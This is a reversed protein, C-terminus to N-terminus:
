LTSMDEAHVLRWRLGDVQVDDLDEVFTYFWTEDDVVVVETCGFRKALKSGEDRVSGPAKEVVKCVAAMVDPEDQRLIRMNTGTHLVPFDGQSRLKHIFDAAGSKLRTLTGGWDLLILRHM